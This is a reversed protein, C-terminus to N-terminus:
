GYRYLRERGALIDGNMRNSKVQILVGAKFILSKKRPEGSGM